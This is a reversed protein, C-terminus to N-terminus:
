FGTWRCEISFPIETFNSPGLMPHVPDGHQPLLKGLYNKPDVVMDLKAGLEDRLEIGLGM